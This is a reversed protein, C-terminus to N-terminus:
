KFKKALENRTDMLKKSIGAKYLHPSIFRKHEDPLLSARSVLYNHIETLTKEEKLLNADRIVPKLLSEKPLGKVKTYLEPHLPHYIIDVNDPDEDETVIADRYFKGQLDYYRIVQKKSPLTIKEVNDSLKM